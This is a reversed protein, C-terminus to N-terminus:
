AQGFANLATRLTAEIEEDEVRAGIQARAKEVIHELRQLSEPHQEWFACSVGLVNNLLDGPYFDGEAFPDDELRDLAVPVLYELSFQQGIMLRLDEIVFDKLPVRRLRHCNTVLRSPYEPAGWDEGDLEELTKDGYSM